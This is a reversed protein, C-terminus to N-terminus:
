QTAAVATRIGFRKLYVCSSLNIRICGCCIFFNGWFIVSFLSYVLRALISSTDLSLILPSLSLPFLFFLCLFLLIPLILQLHLTIIIIFRILNEIPKPFFHDFLLSCVSVCVCACVSGYSSVFMFNIALDNDILSCCHASKLFSLKFAFLIYCVRLLDFPFCSLSLFISFNCRCCFSWPLYIATSWSGPWLLDFSYASM